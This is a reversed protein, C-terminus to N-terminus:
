PASQFELIYTTHHFNILELTFDSEPEMIGGLFIPVVGFEEPVEWVESLSAKQM